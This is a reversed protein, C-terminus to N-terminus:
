SKASDRLVFGEKDSTTMYDITVTELAEALQPEVLLVNRGKDAQVVHDGDKQKDLSMDFKGSESKPAILRVAVDPAAQENDLVERLKEKAITTVELM